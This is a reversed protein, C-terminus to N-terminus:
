LVKIFNELYDYKIGCTYFIIDYIVSLSPKGYRIVSRIIKKLQELSGNSNFEARFWDSADQNSLQYELKTIISSQIFRTEFDQVLSELLWTVYTNDALHQVCMILNWCRNPNWIWKIFFSNAPEFKPYVVRNSLWPGAQVWKLIWDLLNVHLEIFNSIEKLNLTKLNM